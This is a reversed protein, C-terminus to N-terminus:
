YKQSTWFYLKTWEFCVDQQLSVYTPNYIKVSKRHHGRCDIIIYFIHQEMSFLVSTSSKGWWGLILPELRIVGHSLFIAYLVKGVEITIFEFALLGKEM